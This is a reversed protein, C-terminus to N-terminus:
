EKIIDNIVAQIAINGLDPPLDHPLVGAEFREHEDFFDHHEEM